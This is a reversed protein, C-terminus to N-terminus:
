KKAIIIVMHGFLIALFKSEMIRKITKIIFKSIRYKSNVETKCYAYYWEKKYKSFFKYFQRICPIEVSLGYPVSFPIVEVITFGSREIAERIESIKFRYEYFKEGEKQKYAGFVNKIRRIVNFYPVSCFLIGNKCLVRHAERLAKLYNKHHEIVGLSIYAHFFGDPFSIFFIDGVIIPVDSNLARVQKVVEKSWEIGIIDYGKRRLYFVWRGLGCGGELIRAGPMLYKHFIKTLFNFEMYQQEEEFLKMRKKWFESWYEVGAGEKQYIKLPM